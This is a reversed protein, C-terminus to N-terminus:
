LSRLRAHKSTRASFPSTLHIYFFHRAQSWAPDKLLDEVAKQAENIREMAVERTIKAAAIVDQPLVREAVNGVQNAVVDVGKAVVHLGEKGVGTVLDLGKGAVAVTAKGVAGVGALVRVSLFLDQM